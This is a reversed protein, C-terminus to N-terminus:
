LNFLFQYIRKSVVPGIRRNNVKIDKLMKEKDGEYNQYELILNSMSLYQDVIIQAMLASVGTIQRLQNIFCVKPTVNEKKKTKLANTYQVDEKNLNNFENDVENVLQSAYRPLRKLIDKIFLASEEMNETFYIHLHDRVMTNIICGKFKEQNFTKNYQKDLDNEYDGEILYIVNKGKLRAKQEHYRGDNLSAALDNITKREIYLIIKDKYRFVIDALDLSEITFEFHPKLTEIFKSKEKCDVVIEM